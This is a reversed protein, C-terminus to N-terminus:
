AARPPFDDYNDALPPRPANFPQGQAVKRGPGRHISAPENAVPAPRSEVVTLAPAPGRAVAHGVRNRDIMNPM